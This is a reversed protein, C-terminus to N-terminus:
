EKEFILGLIIASCCNIAALVYYLLAEIEHIASQSNEMVVSGKFFCNIISLIMIFILIGLLKKKFNWGSFTSIGKAIIEQGATKIKAADLNEASTKKRM